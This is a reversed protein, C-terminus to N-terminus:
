VCKKKKPILFILFYYTQWVGKNERVEPHTRLRGVSKKIQMNENGNPTSLQKTGEWCGSQAKDMHLRDRVGPTSM